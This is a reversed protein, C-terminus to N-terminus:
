MTFAPGEEQPLPDEDELLTSALGLAIGLAAGLDQGNEEAQIRERRQEEDEENEIVAAADVIGRLGLGLLAGARSHVPSGNREVPASKGTSFGGAGEELRLLRQLSQFYVGRSREWGTEPFEGPCNTGAPPTEPDPELERGSRQNPPGGHDAYVTRGAGSHGGCVGTIRGQHGPTGVEQVPHAPLHLRNEADGDHVGLDTGPHRVGHAHLAEARDGGHISQEEGSLRRGLQRLIEERIAFEYEMNEKRFKDQHLRIDRCKRGGPTTYTIYKRNDEWAVQYGRREMARLFDRRTGSREMAQTIAGMLRFKWSEEKQAARYERSSLKAGPKEYRPLVSLGQAACIEDSLARLTQLTKPSQRLKRGTEWSVSNVVFHSHLHGADRHTAVLVEFGPWAKQAFELAIAHAKELTVAEKPSFSQVYQYFNVGKTKGYTRKTALFEQCANDGLCHVGTVFRQGTVPDRTKKEQCVYSMVGKMAGLSQKKEPIYMVTAM